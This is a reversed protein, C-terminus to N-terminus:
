IMSKALRLAPFAILGFVKWAVLLGLIQFMSNQRLMDYIRGATRPSAGQVVGAGDLPPLPLLNFLGLLLNLNFMVSLFLPLMGLLSSRPIGGSLGVIHSFDYGRVKMLIGGAILAKIAIFAILALTFNALPGALSMLAQRRPHRHGWRPDYPVSAWGIMWSNPASLIFSAFPVLLMGFPSHKIHPTPDLTLLGGHYATRDGGLYASLAHAFEHCTTSLVFVVYWILMAAIDLNGLNPIM